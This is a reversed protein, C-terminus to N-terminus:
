DMHVTEGRVRVMGRGWGVGEGREESEEWGENPAASTAGAFHLSTFSKGPTRQAGHEPRSRTTVKRTLNELVGQRRQVLPSLVVWVVETDMRVHQVGLDPGAERPKEALRSDLRPLLRQEHGHVSM